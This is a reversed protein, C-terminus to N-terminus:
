AAAEVADKLAKGASFKPMMRAPITIAQGSSPNRGERAQRMKAEFTGFGVLTVKDNAAVAETITALLADLVTNVDKKTMEAKFAAAEVLESKNM